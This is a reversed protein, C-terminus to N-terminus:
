TKFVDKNSAQIVEYQKGTLFINNRTQVHVFIALAQEQTNKNVKSKVTIELTKKFKSARTPTETVQQIIEAEDTNGSARQDDFRCLNTRHNVMKM